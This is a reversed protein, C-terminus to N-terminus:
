KQKAIKGEARRTKVQDCGSEERNPRSEAVAPGAPGRHVPRRGLDPRAGRPPDRLARKRQKRTATIGIMRRRATGFCRGGDRRRM